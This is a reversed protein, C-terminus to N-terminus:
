VMMGRVILTVKRFNAVNSSDACVLSSGNNMLQVNHAVATSVITSGSINVLTVTFIGRRATANLQSSVTFITDSEGPASWFLGGNKTQCVVM